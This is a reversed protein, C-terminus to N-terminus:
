MATDLMQNSLTVLLHVHRNTFLKGPIQREDSDSKEYCRALNIFCGPCAANSEEAIKSRRRVSPRVSPRVSLGRRLSRYNRTRERAIGM